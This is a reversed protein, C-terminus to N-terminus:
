DVKSRKKIKKSLKSLVQKEYEEMFTRVEKNASINRLGRVQVVKFSTSIEVTYFPKDLEKINRIVLIHTEGKAYREAYGGVCHHLEKGEAILEEQDVAARIVLDKYSFALKEREERRKELEKKMKENKKFEILQSAREHAVLLDKPFITSEKSIDYNLTKCEAIYDMWDGVRTGYEGLERSNDVDKIQKKIYKILKPWTTVEEIASTDRTYLYLNKIEAVKNIDEVSIKINANRFKRYEELFGITVKIGSAQIEKLQGRDIKLAKFVTQAKWNITRGLSHKLLKREAIEEFGKLKAIKEWLDYTNMVELYYIPLVSYKKYPGYMFKTGAIAKKFSKKDIYSPMNALSNINFKGVKSRPHWTDKSYHFYSMHKVFMKNENKSFIYRGCEYFESKVDKYEGSYDRSVVYGRGVVAEGAKEFRLFTASIKLTKRGYRLQRLTVKSKCNPCTTTTLHKKLHDLVSTKGCHTCYGTYLNNEKKAFLYRQEKFVEEEAFKELEEVDNEKFYEKYREM